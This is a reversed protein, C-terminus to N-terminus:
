AAVAAKREITVVPILRTTKKLYDHFAPHRDAHRGYLRKRETEETVTAVADFAEGDVEITMTPHAVLNHDTSTLGLRRDGLRQVLRTRGM